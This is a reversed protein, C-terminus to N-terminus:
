TSARFQLCGLAEKLARGQSWIDHVNKFPFLSEQMAWATSLPDRRGWLPYTSEEWLSPSTSVSCLKSLHLGKEPVIPPPDQLSLIETEWQSSGHVYLCLALQAELCPMTALEGLKDGPPSPQAHKLERHSSHNTPTVHTSLLASVCPRWPWAQGTALHGPVLALVERMTELRFPHCLLGKDLCLLIFLFVDELSCAGAVAVWGSAHLSCVSTGFASFRIFRLWSKWM